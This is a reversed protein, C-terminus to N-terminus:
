DRRCCSMASLERKKSIDKDEADMFSGGQPEGEARAVGAREQHRKRRGCHGWGKRLKLERWAGVSGLRWAFGRGLAQSAHIQRPLMGRCDTTGPVQLVNPLNLVLCVSDGLM